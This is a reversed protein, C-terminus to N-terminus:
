IHILSLAGTLVSVKAIVKEDVSNAYYNQGNGFLKAIATGLSPVNRKCEPLFNGSGDIFRIGVIGLNSKNQSFKILKDFTDEALVTDPNLICIYEGQALEVAKNNAKSFGINDRNEILKVKPFISKVMACSDDSSHNDVVIIESSIDSLAAEVSQLCLELFYRVNYNLIVVSLKM